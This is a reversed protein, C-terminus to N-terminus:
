KLVPMKRPLSLPLQLEQVNNAAESVTNLKLNMFTRVESTQCIGSEQIQDPDNGIPISFQLEEDGHYRYRNKFIFNLLGWAGPYTLIAKKGRISIDKRDKIDLPFINCDEAWTLSFKIGDGYKWIGSNANQRYSLQQDGFELTQNLISNVNEEQRTNTRFKVTLNLELPKENDLLQKLFKISSYFDTIILKQENNEPVPPLIDFFTQLQQPTVSTQSEPTFPQRGALESNFYAAAKNWLTNFEATNILGRQANVAEELILMKEHFWNLPPATLNSDETGLRFKIYNELQRLLNDNNGTDYTSITQNLKRWLIIDSDMDTFINSDPIFTLAVQAQKNLMILQQRNDALFPEIEALSLLGLAWLKINGSHNWKALYDLNPAYLCKQKLISSLYHLVTLAKHQMFETIVSAKDTEGGQTFATIIRSIVPIAACFNQIEQKETERRSSLIDPIFINSSRNTLVSLNRLMVYECLSYVEPFSNQLDSSWFKRYDLLLNDAEKLIDLKWIFHVNEPMSFDINQEPAEKFFSKGRLHISLSHLEKVRNSLTFTNDDDLRLIPFSTNGSNATLYNNEFIERIQRQFKHSIKNVDTLTLDSFYRNGKIIAQLDSIEATNHNHPFKLIWNQEKNAAIKILSDLSDLLGTTSSLDRATKLQIIQQQPKRSTFLNINASFEELAQLLTNQYYLQTYYLNILSYFRKIIKESEYRFPAIVSSYDSTNALLIPRLPKLREIFNVAFINTSVIDFDEITPKYRLKNFTEITTNLEKLNNVFTYLRNFTDESNDTNKEASKYIDYEKQRLGILMGKLIIDRFCRAIIDQLKSQTTTFYSLPTFLCTFYSDDFNELTRLLEETDHVIQQEYIKIEHVDDKLWITESTKLLKETSGQLRTYQELFPIVTKINNNLGVAGLSLGTLWIIFFCVIAAQYLKMRKNRATYYTKLPVALTREIFIKQTVLDQIYYPHKDNIATFWIGRFNLPEHYVSYAFLIDTFLGLNKFIAEIDATLTFIHRADDNNLNSGFVGTRLNTICNILYNKAETIWSKQWNLNPQYPSSWGLMQNPSLPLYKLGPLNESNSITIYIPVHMGTVKEATIIINKYRQATETLEQEPKKLDDTTINLVICDLPRNPRLKLLTKFLYIISGEECIESSNLLIGENFAYCGHPTNSINGPSISIDALHKLGKGLVLALPLDRSHSLPFIQKLQKLNQWIDKFINKRTKKSKSNVANDPQKSNKDPM